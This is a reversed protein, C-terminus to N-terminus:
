KLSLQQAAKRRLEDNEALSLNKESVPPLDTLLDYLIQEQTKADYIKMCWKRYYIRRIRPKSAEPILEHLIDRIDGWLQTWDEFINPVYEALVFHAAQESATATRSLSYRKEIWSACGDVLKALMETSLPGGTQQTKPAQITSDVQALKKLEDPAVSKKLSRIQSAASRVETLADTRFQKLFGDPRNSSAGPITFLQFERSDAQALNHLAKSIATEIGVTKPKLDVIATGLADYATKLSTNPLNLESILKLIERLKEVAPPSLTLGVQQQDISEALRDLNKSTAAVLAAQNSNFGGKTVSSHNLYAAGILGVEIFGEINRVDSSTRLEPVLQQFETVARKLEAYKNVSTRALSAIIDYYEQLIGTQTRNVDVLFDILADSPGPLLITESSVQAFDAQVLTLEVVEPGTSSRAYVSQLLAPTGIIAASIFRRRNPDILPQQDQKRSM